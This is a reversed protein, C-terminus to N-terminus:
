LTWNAQPPLALLTPAAPYTLLARCRIAHMSGPTSAHQVGQAWAKSLAPLWGWGAHRCGPVQFEACGLGRAEGTACGTASYSEFQQQHGSLRHIEGPFGVSNSRRMSPVFANAPLSSTNTNSLAGLSPLSSNVLSGGRPGGRGEQVMFSSAVNRKPPMLDLDGGYLDKVGQQSGTNSSTSNLLVPAPSPRRSGGDLPRSAAWASQSTNLSNHGDFSIQDMNIAQASAPSTGCLRSEDAALAHTLPCGIVVHQSDSTMGSASHGLAHLDLDHM